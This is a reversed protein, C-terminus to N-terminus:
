ETPTQPSSLRQQLAKKALELQPDMTKAEPTDLSKPGSGRARWRSFIQKEQDADLELTWSPDPVVGWVDGDKDDKGRHINRGSPPFYRATTLKLAAQGGDLEVVNQVSGKGFSRQGVIIARNRDQLCGAVVEAASASQNNIMVVVPHHTPFDVGPTASISSFFLGDRGRTSVINGEELFMDCIDTAATLLGGPNDRLDLILGKANPIKQLAKKMEDVTKEGFSTVHIYALDPAEELYFDWSADTNRRDGIVSEVEINARVLEFDLPESKGQREIRIRVSTGIEGKMLKSAEDLEIKDCDVENIHTIVDGPELGARFAPSDYLPMQITLRDIHPPGDIIIGIGGFQQEMLRQFQVYDDADIYNSYTDLSKVMGKMAARYLEKRDVKEFYGQHILDMAFGIEGVWRLKSAQLYCIACFLLTIGLIRRNRTTM